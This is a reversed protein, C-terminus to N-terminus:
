NAYIILRHTTDGGGLDEGACTMIVLTDNESAKLLENMSIEDKLLIETKYVHYTKNDYVLSDGNKVEDLGKFVTGSHGFIFTKNENKQYVGAIKDPTELRGDEVEIGAVDSVLGISPISIEGVINYNAADAPQLGVILYIAFALFYLGIFVQKPNLRKKLEM